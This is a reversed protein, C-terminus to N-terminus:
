VRKTNDDQVGIRDPYRGIVGIKYPIKNEKFLANIDFVTMETNGPFKGNASTIGEIMCIIAKRTLDV